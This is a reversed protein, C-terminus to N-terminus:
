AFKISFTEVNIIRFYKATDYQRTMNGGCLETPTSIDFCGRTSVYNSITNKYYKHMVFTNNGFWCGLTNAHYVACKGNSYNEKFSYIKIAPNISFLFAHKDTKYGSGNNNWPISTYGGFIHDYETLILTITPGNNDSYKHWKDASFGNISGRYLLSLKINGNYNLQNKISKILENSQIPDLLITDMISQLYAIFHPYLDIPIYKPLYGHLLLRLKHQDFSVKGLNSM